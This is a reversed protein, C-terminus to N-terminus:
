TGRTVNTTCVTNEVNDSLSIDTLVSHITRRGQEPRDVQTTGRSGERGMHPRSTKTQLRVDNRPPHEERRLLGWSTSPSQKTAFLM